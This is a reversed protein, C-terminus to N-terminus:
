NGGHQEDFSGHEGLRCGHQRQEECEDGSLPTHRTPGLAGGRDPQEGCREEETDLSRNSRRELDKSPDGGNRDDGRENESATLATEKAWAKSVLGCKGVEGAGCETIMTTQEHESFKSRCTESHVQALGFMTRLFVEEVVVDMKAESM